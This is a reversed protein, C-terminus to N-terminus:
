FLCCCCGSVVPDIHSPLFFFLFSFLALAVFRSASGNLFVTLSHFSVFFFTGALSTTSIARYGSLCASKLPPLLLVRRRRRGNLVDEAQAGRGARRGAGTEEEDVADPPPM